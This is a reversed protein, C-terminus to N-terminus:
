LDIQLSFTSANTASHYKSYAFDFKFTNMRIGFGFSLGGFSRINQLSLERARRFNYGLRINIANEPFLEAGISFRNIINDFFTINEDTINGELDSTQKTPNPVAVNWRQLNDMTIYWKLPVYQLKYSMGLLINLPLKESVGNYTSLQGGLNRVALGITYPLNENKYTFGIDVAIGSSNFQAINSSIYKLNVGAFIGSNLIESAYGVSIALDSASFNGTEVGLEDTEIFDGYNLYQISFYLVEDFKGIRKAYSVNALNIGALYSTYNVGLKGDLNDNILSPNWLPQNIDNELVIIDGGLALQRASTSVNLFQYVEEGGVQAKTFFPVLFLLFCFSMKM